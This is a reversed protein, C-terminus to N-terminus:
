DVIFSIDNWPSIFIICNFFYSFVYLIFILLLKLGSKYVEIYYLMHISAIKSRITKLTVNIFINSDAM